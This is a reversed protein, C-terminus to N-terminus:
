LKDSMFASIKENVFIADEPSAVAGAPHGWLSPIVLLTCKPIFAAEYRADTVPFYLDTESPMYLVPVKISQLAKEVDGNFPPTDGVNHAQWTRMQLILNNADRGAFLGRFRAVAEPFTPARLKWLDKRWWEQSFLWAAWVISTAEIGKEPQAV